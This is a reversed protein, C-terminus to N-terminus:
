AGSQVITRLGRNSTSSGGGSHPGECEVKGIVGQGGQVGEHLLRLLGADKATSLGHAVDDFPLAEWGNGVGELKRISGQALPDMAKRVLACLAEDVARAGPSRGLPGTCEFHVEMTEDVLVRDLV